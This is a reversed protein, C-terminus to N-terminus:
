SGEIFLRSSSKASEPMQTPVRLTSNGLQQAIQFNVKIAGMNKTPYSNQGLNQNGQSPTGNKTASSMM